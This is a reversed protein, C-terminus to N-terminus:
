ESDHRLWSAGWVIYRDSLATKVQTNVTKEIAAGVDALNEAGTGQLSAKIDAVIKDDITTDSTSGKIHFVTMAKVIAFDKNDRLFKRCPELDAGSGYLLEQVVPDKLRVLIARGNTVVERDKARKYAAKAAARVKETAAPPLGAATAAQVLDAEANAGFSSKLKYKYEFGSTASKSDLHETKFLVKPELNCYRGITGTQYPQRFARGVFLNYEPNGDEGLFLTPPVLNFKLWSPDDDPACDVNQFGPCADKDKLKKHPLIVKGSASTTAFLLAIILALRM